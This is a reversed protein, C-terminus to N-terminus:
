KGAAKELCKFMAAQKQAYEDWHKKRAVDVGRKISGELVADCDMALYRMRGQLENAFCKASAAAQTRSTCNNCKECKYQKYGDHIRQCIANKALFAVAATVVAKPLLGSAAELITKVAEVNGAAIADNLSATISDVSM